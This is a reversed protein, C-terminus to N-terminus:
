RLDLSAARARIGNAVVEALATPFEKPLSAQMKALAGEVRGAVDALVEEALTVGFGAAKAAQLFHRPVVENIRYHGDVAMALRMRNQRIQGDDVAKQASL